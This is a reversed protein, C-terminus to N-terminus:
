KEFKKMKLLVDWNKNKHFVIVGQSVMSDKQNFMPLVKWGNDSIRQKSFLHKSGIIHASKQSYNLRFEEFIMTYENLRVSVVIDQSGDERLVSSQCIKIKHYNPSGHNM